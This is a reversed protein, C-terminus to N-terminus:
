LLYPTCYNSLSHAPPHANGLLSLATNELTRATALAPIQRLNTRWGFAKSVQEGPLNSFIIIPKHPYAIDALYNREHQVNSIGAHLNEECSFILIDVDHKPSNYSNPSPTQYSQLVTIGARTAQRRVSRLTIYDTIYLLATM